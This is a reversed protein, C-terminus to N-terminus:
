LCGNMLFLLSDQGRKVQNLTRLYQTHPPRWKCKQEDGLHHQFNTPLSITSVAAETERIFKEFTCAPLSMESIMTMGLNPLKNNHTFEPNRLFVNDATLICQSSTHLFQALCRVREELISTTKKKKKYQQFFYSCSGTLSPLTWKPKEKCLITQWPPSTMTDRQM